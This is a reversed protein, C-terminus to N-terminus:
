CREFVKYLNQLNAIQLINSALQKAPLLYRKINDHIVHEVTWKFDHDSVSLATRSYFRATERSFTQFCQKESQWDVETALRLIYMPLFAMSPMHNDSILRPLFVCSFIEQAFQTGLLIPLSRLCGDATVRLGYYERVIPAKEVLIASVSAALEAIPGDSECWGSEKSKLAIEALDSIKLPQSFNIADFNEFDYLLIQYFLEETLAKVDLLYLNSEFQILIKERSVCGVFTSEALTKRLKRNCKEEVRQRLTLVSTM